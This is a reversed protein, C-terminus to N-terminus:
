DEDSSRARKASEVYSSNPGANAANMIGASSRSMSSMANVLDTVLDILEDLKQPTEDTQQPQELEQPKEEEQPKKFDQLGALAEPINADSIDKAAAAVERMSAAVENLPESLSALREFGDAVKEISNLGEISRSMADMTSAISGSNLLPGGFAFQLASLAARLRLAQPLGFKINDVDDALTNLSESLGIDALSQISKATDEVATVASTIAAFGILSPVLLASAFMVGVGALALSLAFRTVAAVAIMAQGFVETQVESLDSIPGSVTESIKSTIMDVAELGVIGLLIPAALAYTVLGVLAVEAVIVNVGLLILMFRQMSQEVNGGISDNANAIDQAVSAVENIVPSLAQLGATALPLTGLFFVSAIGFLTLASAIGVLSGIMVIATLGLMGAQQADGVQSVVQAITVFPLAVLLLAASSVAIVAMGAVMMPIFPSLFGLGTLAGIMLASVYIMMLSALGLAQVAEVGGGAMELASGIAMFAIGIMLLSASALAMVVAGMLIPEMASQGIIGVAILGILLGAAVGLVIAVGVYRSSDESLWQGLSGAIFLAGAIAALSVAALIMAVGAAVIPEPQAAIGIVILGGLLVTATTLVLTVGNMRTEDESLWQGVFGALLLAASILLLSVSAMVMAQGVAQIARAGEDDISEGVFIFSALLTGAIVLPLLVTDMGLISIALGAIAAVILGVSIQTMVNSVKNMTTAISQFMEDDVNDKIYNALLLTGGFTLFAMGLTLVVGGIIAGAGFQNIAFAGVAIAAVSLALTAGIRLFTNSVTDLAEIAGEEKIYDALIVMAATLASLGAVIAVAKSITSDDVQQLALLAVSFGVLGVALAAVNTGINGMLDKFSLKADNEATDPANKGENAKRMESLITSLTEYLLVFGSGIGLPISNLDDPTVGSTKNTLAFDETLDTEEGFISSKISDGLEKFDEAKEEPTPQANEEENKEEADSTDTTGDPNEKGGLLTVLTSVKDILEAYYDGMSEKVKSAIRGTNEDNLEIGDIWDGDLISSTEAQMQGTETNVVGNTQGISEISRGAM